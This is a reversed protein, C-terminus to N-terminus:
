VARCIFLLQPAQEVHTLWLEARSENGPVVSRNYNQACCNAMITANFRLLIFQTFLQLNIQMLDATFKIHYIGYILLTM